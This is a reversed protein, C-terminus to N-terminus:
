HHTKVWKGYDSVNKKGKLVNSKYIYNKKVTKIKKM